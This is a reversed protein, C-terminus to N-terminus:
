HKFMDRPEDIRETILMQAGDFNCVIEIGGGGKTAKLIKLHLAREDTQNRWAGIVLGASCELSGSDKANHIGIENTDEPPRAIQSAVVIITKTAKALSKLGEALESTREYRSGGRGGMLQVYDILVLNPKAGMKLEARTIIGEMSELTQRPETCICLNPFSTNLIELGLEEGRRYAQEVDRCTMEQKLAVFREFLLEEPLEMEFFITRLSRNTIAINQLIASKGIGTDGILLAVEGPVLPRLKRFTPLWQGLDLKVAQSGIAQDKYRPEIEAMSYIPMRVGGMHPTAANIMSSFERAAEEPTKFTGIFDTVDKSPFPVKVIKVMKARPALSDFVMDVHKRGPEDNDGCLIVEKGALSETYGDLWKGAGGVNTTATFGLSVLSDSDREGEVLIVQSSKMVEPLRYLVREVNEMSWIWGGKGDAHRQRFSKPKLRVVQYSEHGLADAYSYVKEIENVVPVPEGKPVTPLKPWRFPKADARDPFLDRPTIGMAGCIAEVTCGAFCKVLIGEKGMAVSMSPTHDDHAPCKVMVGDKTTKKATFRALFENLTM